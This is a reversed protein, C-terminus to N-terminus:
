DRVVLRLGGDISDLGLLHGYRSEWTGDDLDRALRDMRRAVLDDDLLALVSTCARIEPDLYAAPRRWYAWNFGDTCDAPVDVVEVRDAGLAEAVAHSRTANTAVPAVAEPIYDDFLWFSNHVIPDFTLVVLRRAVRGMEALGATVDTWHHVTLVALAADFTQDALPLREAVARVVPASGSPRQAIMVQSPEVAVVARDSPEYSGTGAGVNVVTTADSLARAIQAALRPDPRRHRAYVSGIRDYGSGAGATGTTARRRGQVAECSM